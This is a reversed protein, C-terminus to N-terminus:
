SKNIKAVEKANWGPSAMDFHCVIAAIGLTVLVVFVVMSSILIIKNEEFNGKMIKFGIFLGVCIVIFGLVGTVIGGIYAMGTHSFLQSKDLLESEKNILENFIKWRHALSINDIKSFAAYFGFILALIGSIVLLITPLWKKYKNINGEKM